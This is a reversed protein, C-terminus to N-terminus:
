EDVNYLNSTIIGVTIEYLKEYAYVQLIVILLWSKLPLIIKEVDNNTDFVSYIEIEMKRNKNHENPWKKIAQLPPRFSSIKAELTLFYLDMYYILIYVWTAM